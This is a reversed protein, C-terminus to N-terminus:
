ESDTGESETLVDEGTDSEDSSDGDIEIKTVLPCRRCYQRHWFEPSNANHAPTHGSEIDGVVKDFVLLGLTTFGRFYTIWWPTSSSPKLLQVEWDRDDAYYLFPSEKRYIKLHYFPCPSGCFVLQKPM